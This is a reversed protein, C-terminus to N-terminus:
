EHVFSVLGRHINPRERPDSECVYIFIFDDPLPWVGVAGLPADDNTYADEDLEIRGDTLVQLLARQVPLGTKELGTVVLARPPNSTSVPTPAPVSISSSQATKTSRMDTSAQQRFPRRSSALTEADESEFHASFAYEKSSSQQFRTSISSTAGYSAVRASSHVHASSSSNGSASRIIPIPAPPRSSRQAPAVELFLKSLAATPTERGRLGVQHAPYGFVSALLKGEFRLNSASRCIFCAILEGLKGHQRHQKHSGHRNQHM